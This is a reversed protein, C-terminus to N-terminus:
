VNKQVRSVVPNFNWKKMEEILALSQPHHYRETMKVSSHGAIQSIMKFNMGLASSLSIFTHRATRTTIDVNVEAYMAALKLHDRFKQESIIHFVPKGPTTIKPIHHIGAPNYPIFVNSLTKHQVLYIGDSRLSDPKLQILDSFRLGGHYLAFLFAHLSKQVKEPMEPLNEELAIIDTFSLIEKSTKEWKLHVGIFPDHKILGKEVAVSVFFKLRKLNNSVTNRSNGISFLYNEYEEFLDKRIDTFRLNPRWKNFKNLIALLQVTYLPSVKFKRQNLYDEVWTVFRGKSESDSFMVDFNQLTLQLNENQIDLIIKEAKLKMTNLFTNLERDNAYGSKVTEKKEDWYEPLLTKGTSYNKVKRDIIIRLYIPRKGSLKKDNRLFLSVSAAM